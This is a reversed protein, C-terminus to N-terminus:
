KPPPCPPGSNVRKQCAHYPISVVQNIETVSVSKGVSVWNAPIKVLPDPANFDCADGPPPIPYPLKNIAVVDTKPLDCTQYTCSSDCAPVCSSPACVELASAPLSVVAMLWILAFM